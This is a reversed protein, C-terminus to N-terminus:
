GELKGDVIWKELIDIAKDRFGQLEDGHIGPPMIPVYQGVTNRGRLRTLMMDVHTKVFEYNSMDFPVVGQETSTQVNKMPAVYPQLVRSVEGKFTVPREISM